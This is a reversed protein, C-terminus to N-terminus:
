PELQETDITRPLGLDRLHEERDGLGRSVVRM